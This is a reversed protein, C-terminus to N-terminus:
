QRWCQAPDNDLDAGSSLIVTAADRWALRMPNCASDKAQAGVAQAEAVYGEASAQTMRLRYHGQPSLDTTWGLEGTEAAFGAHSGRYRIQDFQLQQLAARADGRRVQRQQQQYGPVALAALIGAITVVMLLETLTWGHPAQVSAPARGPTRTPM